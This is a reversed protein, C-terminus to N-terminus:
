DTRDARRRDLIEQFRGLKSTTPVSEVGAREFLARLADAVPEAAQGPSLELEVEFREEDAAFRTRDLELVVPVGALETAVRTRENSFSGIPTPTAEACVGRVTAALGTEEPGCAAELDDLLSVVDLEGSLAARARASSIETELEVRDSLLGDRGASTPGKVTLIFRGGEERIRFGISRRRLDGDVTDFFHNVQLAPPERKGGVTEILAELAAADPVGLKLERERPESASDGSTM